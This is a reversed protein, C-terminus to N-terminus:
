EQNLILSQRSEEDVLSLERAIRGVGRRAYARARSVERREVSSRARDQQCAMQGGRRTDEDRMEVRM